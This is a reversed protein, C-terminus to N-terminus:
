WEQQYCRSGYWGGKFEGVYEVTDPLVVIFAGTKDILGRRNETKVFCVGESFFNNADDFQPEIVIKGSADMFGYKDGVM